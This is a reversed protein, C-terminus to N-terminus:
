VVSKRDGPMNVKTWFFESTLVFAPQQFINYCLPNVVFYVLWALIAYSLAVPIMFVPKRIM